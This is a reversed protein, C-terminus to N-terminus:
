VSEKTDNYKYLLNLLTQYDEKSWDTLDIESIYENNITVTIVQDKILPEASINNQTEFPVRCEKAEHILVGDDYIKLRKGNMKKNGSNYMEYNLNRYYANSKETKRNPTWDKKSM